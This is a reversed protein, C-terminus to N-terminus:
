AVNLGGLDVTGTRDRMVVISEATTIRMCVDVHRRGVV